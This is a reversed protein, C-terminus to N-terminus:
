TLGVRTVPVSVSHSMFKAGLTTSSALASISFHSISCQIMYRFGYRYADRNVSGQVASQIGFFSTMHSTMWNDLQGTTWFPSLIASLLTLLLHGATQPQGILTDVSDMHIPHLQLTFVDWLVCQM